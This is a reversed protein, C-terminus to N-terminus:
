YNRWSCRWGDDYLSCLVAHAQIADSPVKNALVKANATPVWKWTFEVQARTHSPDFAIGTVAVLEKVALPMHFLTGDPKAPLSNLWFRSVPVDKNYTSRFDGDRKILDAAVTRTLVIGACHQSSDGRPYDAKYDHARTRKQVVVVAQDSFPTSKFQWGCRPQALKPNSNAIRLGIGAPQCM